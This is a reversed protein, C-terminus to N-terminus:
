LCGSSDPSVRDLEEKIFAKFNQAKDSRMKSVVGHRHLIYARYVDSTDTMLCPGIFQEKQSLTEKGPVARMIIYFHKGEHVVRECDIHYGIQYITERLLPVDTHASLVMTAGQLAHPSKLLIKSLTGGGMGLIALAEVREKLADLGDAVCFDARSSLGYKEILNEAKELSPRSIDSIVIRGAKGTALLFCSLRGHDAGIDAGLGCAPFLEAATKLRGDLQPITSM